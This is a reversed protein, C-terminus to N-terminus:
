KYKFTRGLEEELRGKGGIRPVIVSKLWHVGNEDRWRRGRSSDPFLCVIDGPKLIREIDAPTLFDFVEARHAGGGSRIDWVRLATNATELLGPVPYVWIPRGLYRWEKNPGSVLLYYNGDPAPVFGEFVGSVSGVEGRVSLERKGFGAYNMQWTGFDILINSVITQRGSGDEDEGVYVVDGKVNRAIEPPVQEPPLPSLNYFDPIKTMENEVGVIAAMEESTLEIVNTEIESRPVELVKEIMKNAYERLWGSQFDVRIGTAGFTGRDYIHFPNQFGELEGTEPNLWVRVGYPYDEQSIKGQSVLNEYALTGAFVQFPKSKPSVGEPPIGFFVFYVDLDEGALDLYRAVGPRKEFNVYATFDEGNARIVEAYPPTAWGYFHGTESDVYKVMQQTEGQFTVPIIEGTQEDGGIELTQIWETPIQGMEMIPTPTPEPTPIATPLPSPTSILTPASTPSAVPIRAEGACGTVLLLAVLMGSIIKRM